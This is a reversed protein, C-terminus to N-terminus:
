RTCSFGNSSAAAYWCNSSSNPTVWSSSAARMPRERGKIVLMIRNSLSGM